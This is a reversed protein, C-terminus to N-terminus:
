AIDNLHYGSHQAFDSAYSEQKKALILSVVDTKKDQENESPGLGEDKLHLSSDGKM